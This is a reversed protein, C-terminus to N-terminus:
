FNTLCLVSYYGEWPQGVSNEAELVKESECLEMNAEPLSEIDFHGTLQVLSLYWIM